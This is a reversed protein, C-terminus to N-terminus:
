KVFFTARITVMVKKDITSTDYTGYDSVDVSDGALVQVVGSSASQLRGVSQGTNKVIQETRMKADKVAEGILSIRLDPLTSVYYQPDQISFIVGQNTLASLNQALQQIRAPDNSSVTVDQRVIYRKPVNADQSYSYDQDTHVVGLTIADEAIGANKFFMSIKTVDGIVVTTAAPIGDELVSRAASVTWKATDASVQTTASGTVSITNSANKISIATVSVIAGVVILGTALLVGLPVFQNEWFRTHNPNM